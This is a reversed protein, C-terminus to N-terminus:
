KKLNDYGQGGILWFIQLMGYLKAKEERLFDDFHQGSDARKDLIREVKTIQQDIAEKVLTLTKDEMYDGEGSKFRL